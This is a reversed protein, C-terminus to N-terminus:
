RPYNYAKTKAVLPLYCTLVLLYTMAHETQEGFKLATTGAVLMLQFVAKVMIAGPQAKVHLNVQLDQWLPRTLVAVPVYLLLVAAAALSYRQHKGTWCVESCDRNFLNGASITRFCAFFSLLNSSVPLFLLNSLTPLLLELWYIYFVCIGHNLLSNHVNLLMLVFLLNYGAAFGLSLNAMVWFSENNANLISEFSFGSEMALYDDLTKLIGISPGHAAIELLDIPIAVLCLVDEISIAAPSVLMPLPGSWFRKWILVTVLIQAAAFGICVSFGVVKGQTSESIDRAYYPCLPDMPITDSFSDSGDPWQIQATINFLRVKFPSYTAVPHIAVSDHTENYQLNLIVQDSPILDNSGAEIQIRGACGVFRTDRMTRVLALGDEYHLGKEVMYDLAHAVLMANDYFLCGETFFSSGDAAMLQDKATKGVPGVYLQPYIKIAGHIIQRRKRAAEDKGEYYTQSLAYAIVVLFDGTRAGLDYMREVLLYSFIHVIVLIRTPSAIIERLTANVQTQNQELAVPLVRNAQSNTINIHYSSTANLFCEYYHADEEAKSYIIAVHTWGFLHFFRATAFATFVNNNNTRLYLPYAKSDSLVHSGAATVVPISYNLAKFVKSVGIINQSLSVGHFVLKLQEKGYLKAQSLAWNEDFYAAGLAVEQTKVQFYPLLDQRKNVEAYGLYFGRMIVQMYPFDSGDFSHGDSNISIPISAQKWAPPHESNGPFRLKEPRFWALPQSTTQDLQINSLVISVPRSKGSYRSTLFSRLASSTEAGSLAAESLADLQAELLSKQAEEWTKTGAATEGSIYLAGEILTSNAHWSPPDLFIYAFGSGWLNYTNLAKALSAATASDVLCLALNTGRPKIVKGVINLIYEQTFDTEVTVVNSFVFSQQEQLAKAIERYFGLQGQCLLVNTFGLERMVRGVAEAYEQATPWTRLTGNPCEVHMCIVVTEPSFARILLGTRQSYTFDLVTDVQKVPLETEGEGLAWWSLSQGKYQTLVARFLVQLSEPTLPSSVLAVQLSAALVIVAVILRM